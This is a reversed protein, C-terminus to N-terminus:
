GEQSPTAPSSPHQIDMVDAIGNSVYGRAHKLAQALLSRDIEDDGRLALEVAYIVADSVCLSSWLAELKTEITSGGASM